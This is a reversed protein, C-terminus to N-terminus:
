AVDNAPWGVFNGHALFHDGAAVLAHAMTPDFPSHGAGDVFHLQSGPLAQHVAWANSPRCILDLRGHLIATPLGQMTRAFELARAEGIFCEHRLYHAQLRYKALQASAADRSGSAAPSPPSGPSSLAEEWDMWRRVAEIGAEDDEGAVTDFYWAALAAHRDRPAIGALASWHDPLLQGAGNFFWDIDAQGTLFIGRLIAGRCATRHQACYALALSSGWSGGFVLWHALGLHARLREIDAVLDATTNARCEGKPTSRGCGRQDFLVIRWGPNLLRRHRPSCGSGPGGHLFLAAPGDTAGCQEYYIHHDHGVELWGRDFPEIEPFLADGCSPGAGCDAVARSSSSAGASPPAGSDPTRQTM